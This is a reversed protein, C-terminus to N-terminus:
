ASDPLPGLSRGHRYIAFRKGTTQVTRPCKTSSCLQRIEEPTAHRDTGSERAMEAKVAAIQRLLTRRVTEAYEEDLGLHSEEDM